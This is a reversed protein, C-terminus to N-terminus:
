VHPPLSHLRPQCSLLSPPYCCRPVTSDYWVAQADPVPQVLRPARLQPQQLQLMRPSSGCTGRHRLGGVGVSSRRGVLALVGCSWVVGHCSPVAFCLTGRLAAGVRGVCGRRSTYVRHHSMHTRMHTNHTTTYVTCTLPLLVPTHAHYVALCCAEASAITGLGMREVDCRSCRRACVRVCLVRSSRTSVGVGLAPAAVCVVVVVVVM